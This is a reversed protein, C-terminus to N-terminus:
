ALFSFIVSVEKHFPVVEVPAKKNKYSLWKGLYYRYLSPSICDLLFTGLTQEGNRISCNLFWKFDSTTVNEPKYFFHRLLQHVVDSMIDAKSLFEILNIAKRFIDEM